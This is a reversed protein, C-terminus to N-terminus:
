CVAAAKCIIGYILSIRIDKINHLIGIASLDRHQLLLRLITLLKTLQEVSKVIILELRIGVSLFRSIQNRIICVPIRLAAALSLIQTKIIM